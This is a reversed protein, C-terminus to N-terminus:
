SKKTKENKLKKINKEDELTSTQYNNIFYNDDKHHTFYGRQDVYHLFLQAYADGQYDGKRTHSDEVGLYIVGDGPNAIIETGEIVLPWPRDSYLNVTVSIECSPRDSHLNLKTGYTYWRWYAYTSYLELGVLEEVKKRKMKLVTQMLDDNGFDLCFPATGTEHVASGKNTALATKCYEQLLKLEDKSLFNKIIKYRFDKRINAM